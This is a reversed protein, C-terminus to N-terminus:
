AAYLMTSDVKSSKLCLSRIPLSAIINASFDSLKAIVAWTLPTIGHNERGQCWGNLDLMGIIFSLMRNAISVPLKGYIPRLAPMVIAM